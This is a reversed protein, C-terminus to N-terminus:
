GCFRLRASPRASARLRQASPTRGAPPSATIRAFILGTNRRVAADAVVRAIQFRLHERRPQMRRNVRQGLDGVRAPLREGLQRQLPRQAVLGHGRCEDARAARLLDGFVDGRQRQRRQGALLQRLDVGRQRQIFLHSTM